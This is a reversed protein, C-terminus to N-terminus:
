QDLFVFPGPWNLQRDLIAFVENEERKYCAEDGLWIHEVRFRADENYDSAIKVLITALLHLSDQNRQLDRKALIRDLLHVALHLTLPKLRQTRQVYL